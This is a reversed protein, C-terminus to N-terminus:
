GDDKDKRIVFADAFARLAGTRVRNIANASMLKVIEIRASAYDSALRNVTEVLSAKGPAYVYRTEPEDEHAVVLRSSRLAALADAALAPSIGLRGSIREAAWTKGVERRLLLLVELQEYSEIHDRLLARVDDPIEACSM